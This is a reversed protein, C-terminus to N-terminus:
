SLLTEGVSFSRHQAWIMKGRQGPCCRGNQARPNRNRDGRALSSVVPLRPQTKRQMGCTSFSGRCMIPERYIVAPPIIQGILRSSSRCLFVDACPHGRCKCFGKRTCLEVGGEFPGNAPLVSTIIIGRVWLLFSVAPNLSPEAVQSMWEIM